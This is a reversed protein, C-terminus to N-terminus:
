KGEYHIVFRRPQQTQRGTPIIGVQLLNGESVYVERARNEGLCSTINLVENSDRITFYPECFKGSQTASVTSASLTHHFNYLTLRFRQGSDARISWPCRVTGFGSDDAILSSIYGSQSVLELPISRGCM